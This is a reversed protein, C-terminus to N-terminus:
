TGDEILSGGYMSSFLGSTNGKPIVVEKIKFDADCLDRLNVPGIYTLLNAVVAPTRWSRASIRM